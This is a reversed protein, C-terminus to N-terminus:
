DATLKEKPIFSMAASNMCYRKGGSARPGDDFVHGLHIHDVECKVETRKMM